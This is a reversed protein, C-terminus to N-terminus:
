RRAEQGAVDSSLRAGNRVLYPVFHWATVVFLVGGALGWAGWGLWRHLADWAGGLYYGLVGIATAWFAAGAANALFFRWWPMGAVGAAPGAVIRLLAVFRGFFVTVAGYKDFYREALQVRRPTLFLFRRGAAIRARAWERGVWYGLNDGIVAGATASAIVSWLHLRSGGEPSALVAAALLAMEGPLPIGANELMVGVFLVWYGHVAYIDAFAQLTDPM